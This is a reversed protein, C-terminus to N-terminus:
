SLRSLTALQGDLAKVIQKAQTLTSATRVQFGNENVVLYLEKAKLTVIHYRPREQAQPKSM